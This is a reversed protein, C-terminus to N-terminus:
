PASPSVAQNQAPNAPPPPPPPITSDPSETAAAVTPPATPSETKASQGATLTQTGVATTVEVSGSVVQISNGKVKFEGGDTTITAGGIKLTAQGQVTVKANKPLPTGPVYETGNVLVKGSGSVVEITKPATKAMVATGFCLLMAAAFLMRKTM